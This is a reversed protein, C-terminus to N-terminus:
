AFGSGAFSVGRRRAGPATRYVRAWEPENQEVELVHRNKKSALVGVLPYPLYTWRAKPPRLSTEEM